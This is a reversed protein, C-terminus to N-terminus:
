KLLILHLMLQFSVTENWAEPKLNPMNKYNTAVRAAGPKEAYIVKEFANIDGKLIAKVTQFALENCHNTIELLCNEPLIQADASTETVAPLALGKQEVVKLSALESGEAPANFNFFNQGSFLFYVEKQDPDHVAIFAWNPEKDNGLCTHTGYVNLIPTASDEEVLFPFVHNICPLYPKPTPEDKADNGHM